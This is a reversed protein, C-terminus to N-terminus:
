IKFGRLHDDRIYTEGKLGRYLRRRGTKRYEERVVLYEATIQQRYEPDSSWHLLCEEYTTWEKKCTYFFTGSNDACEQYMDWLHNCKFMEAAKVQYRPISVHIEKQTLSFDEPDGKGHPGIGKAADDDVQDTVFSNGM